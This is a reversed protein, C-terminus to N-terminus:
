GAVGTAPSLVTPACWFGPGDPASGRFAVPAGDDLFSAVSERHGASILPGMETAEQLPDGVRIATVARELEGMFEDM